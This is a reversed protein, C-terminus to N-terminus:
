REQESGQAAKMEAEEIARLAKLRRVRQRVAALAFISFNDVGDFRMAEIIDPWESPPITVSKQLSPRKRSKTPESVRAIRASPM